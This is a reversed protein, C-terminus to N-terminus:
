SAKPDVMMSAALDFVEQDVHGAGPVIELRWGFSVGLRVAVSERLEFHWLGRALRHPGQAM